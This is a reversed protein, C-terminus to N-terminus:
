SKRLVPYKIKKVVQQRHKMTLGEPNYVTYTIGAKEHGIIEAAENQPVRALELCRTANKRLSHFAKRCRGWGGREAGAGGGPITM